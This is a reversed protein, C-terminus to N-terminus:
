GYTVNRYCTIKIEPTSSYFGFGWAEGSSEGCPKGV